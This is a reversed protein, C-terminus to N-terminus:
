PLRRFRTHQLGLGLGLIGLAPILAWAYLERRYEFKSATQASTELRNIQDYIKRLSDTDTARYFEGGNMTAIRQLTAEDVDVKAMVLQVHGFDDKVPVPAEGRVGVAITYIKVGPM